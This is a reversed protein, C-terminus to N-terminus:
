KKYQLVTVWAFRRIFPFTGFVFRDVPSLIKMTQRFLWKNKFAYYWFFAFLSFLYFENHTFHSFHTSIHEIQSFRLPRETPTRRHPTFLRFLNLLPNHDLPELFAAIGGKKLVTVMKPVAIELNLHHLVSHGYVVDFTSVPFNLDEGGMHLATVSKEVGDQKAVRKTLEVMEESIDLATVFAGAKAFRLTASGDGCGIELVRKGKLDGLSRWLTDDAEGLAGFGYFDDVGHIAKVDHFQSEILHRDRLDLEKM